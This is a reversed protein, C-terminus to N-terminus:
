VVGWIHWKKTRCLVWMTCRSKLSVVLSVHVTRHDLSVVTRRTLWNQVQAFLETLTQDDPLDSIHRSYFHHLAAIDTQNMEEKESDMKDLDPFSLTVTWLCWM